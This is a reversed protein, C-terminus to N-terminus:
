RGTSTKSIPTTLTQVRQRRVVHQCFFFSVNKKSCAYAMGILSVGSIVAEILFWSGEPHRGHWANLIVLLVAEPYLGSNNKIIWTSDVGFPVKTEVVIVLSGFYADEGVWGKNIMDIGQVQCLVKATHAPILTKTPLHLKRSTLRKTGTDWADECCGPVYPDLLVKPRIKSCLVMIKNPKPPEFTYNSLGGLKSSKPKWGSIFKDLTICM